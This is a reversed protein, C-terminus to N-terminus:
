DFRREEVVDVRGKGPDRVLVSHAAIILDLTIVKSSVCFHVGGTYLSSSSSGSSGSLAGEM